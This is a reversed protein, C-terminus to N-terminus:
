CGVGEFSAHSRLLQDRHKLRGTRSEGKERLFAPVETSSIFVRSSSSPFSSRYQLHHAETHCTGRCIRNLSAPSAALSVTHTHSPASLLVLLM